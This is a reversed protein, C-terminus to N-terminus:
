KNDSYYTMMKPTRLYSIEKGCSSILNHEIDSITECSGYSHVIALKLL